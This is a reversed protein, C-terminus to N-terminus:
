PIDYFILGWQNKDSRWKALSGDAVKCISMETSNRRHVNQTHNKFWSKDVANSSFIDQEPTVFNEM